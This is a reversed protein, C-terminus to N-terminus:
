PVKVKVTWELQFYIQEDNGSVSRQCVAELPLQPRFPSGLEACSFQQRRYTTFSICRQLFKKAIDPFISMWIIRASLPIFIVSKIRSWFKWSRVPFVVVFMKMYASIPQGTSQFDDLSVGKITANVVFQHAMANFGKNKQKQLCGTGQDPSFFQIEDDQLFTLYLRHELM